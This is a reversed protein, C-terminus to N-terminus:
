GSERLTGYLKHRKLIEEVIREAAKGDGYINSGAQQMTKYAAEDDLLRSAEKIIKDTDTGVLKVSGAEVGEPRETTERTVLVPKHLTPGEEQIGGSDSLIFYARNMLYIFPLYDLPEGLHINPQDRLMKEVPGKVHPNLHVPLYIEVDDRRALRRLAECCREIGGDFNERRHMTALILKKSPDLHTFQAEVEARLEAKRELLDSFYFLADVVTNGSIFINEDKMGERRLYNAAQETPAFHLDAILSMAHRNFEEPYPSHINGSRLGAEVHAVPVNAYFCALATAFGTTTDGQVLVRDPKMEALVKQMKLLVETTLQTLTQNPRMVKLDVDPAIECRNLMQTLMEKHQGTVAILSEVQPCARLAQLVPAVKIVEPRTGFVSLIRLDAM